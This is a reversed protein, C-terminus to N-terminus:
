RQDYIWVKIMNEFAEWSMVVLTKKTGAYRCVGIPTKKGLNKANKAEDWAGKLNPKKGYKLQIAFPGAFIDIPDTKAFQTDWNRKVFSLGAKKLRRVIDREFEKWPLYKSM